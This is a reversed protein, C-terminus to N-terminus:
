ATTFSRVHTPTDGVPAMRYTRVPMKISAPRKCRGPLIVEHLKKYRKDKPAYEQHDTPGQCQDHKKEKWEHPKQEQREGDNTQCEFHDEFEDGGDQEKRKADEAGPNSSM